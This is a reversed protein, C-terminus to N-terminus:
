RRDQHETVFLADQRMSSPPVIQVALHHDIPRSDRPPRRRVPAAGIRSRDVLRPVLHHDSDSQGARALGLPQGFSSSRASAMRCAPRHQPFQAAVIRAVQRPWPRDIHHDSTMSGSSSRTRTAGKQGVRAGTSIEEARVPRATLLRQQTGRRPPSCSSPSGRPTVGPAIVDNWDLTPRHHKMSRTGDGDSWCYEPPGNRRATLAKTAVILRSQHRQGGARAEAGVLDDRGEACAAHALDIARAVRLEIAVDRQLDQGLEERQSGSRSARKLRSACTSAESLWGFM